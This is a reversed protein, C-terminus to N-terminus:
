SVSLRTHVSTGLASLIGEAMSSLRWLSFPVTYASILGPIWATVNQIAMRLHSPLNSTEGELSICVTSKPSAFPQNQCSPPWGEQKEQMGQRGQLPKLLYGHSPYHCVEGTTIPLTDRAHCHKPWVIYKFQLLLSTILRRLHLFPYDMFHSNLMCYDKTATTLIELPWLAKANYLASAVFDFLSGATVQM